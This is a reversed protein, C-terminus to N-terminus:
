FVEPRRLRQITLMDEVTINKFLLLYNARLNNVTLSGQTRSGVGCHPPPGALPFPLGKGSAKPGPVGGGGCPHLTITRLAHPDDAPSCPAFRSALLESDSAASYPTSAASWATAWAM